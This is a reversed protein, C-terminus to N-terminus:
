VVALELFLFYCRKNKRIPQLLIGSKKKFVAATHDTSKESSINLPSNFDKLEFVIIFEKWIEIAKHFIYAFRLLINKRLHFRGLIMECSFVLGFTVSICVDFKNYTFWCCCWCSFLLYVYAFVCCAFHVFLVLLLATVISLELFCFCSCEVNLVNKLSFTHAYLFVFCLLCSDTLIWDAKHSTAHSCFLRPKFIVM